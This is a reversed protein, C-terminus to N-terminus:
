ELDNINRRLNATVSDFQSIRINLQINDNSKNKVILNLREVEQTLLALQSNLHSYENIKNEQM